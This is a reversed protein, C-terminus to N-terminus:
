LLPMPCAPTRMRDQRSTLYDQCIEFLKFLNAEDEAGLATCADLCVPFPTEAAM